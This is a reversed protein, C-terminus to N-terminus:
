VEADPRQQARSYRGISRCLWAKWVPTELVPFGRVKGRFGTSPQWTALLYPTNISPAELGTTPSSLLGKCRVKAPSQLPTTWCPGRLDATERFRDFSTKRRSNANRCISARVNYRHGLYRPGPVLRCAMLCTSDEESEPTPALTHSEKLWVM